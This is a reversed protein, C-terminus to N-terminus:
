HLSTSASMSHDTRFQLRRTQIEVHPRNVADRRRLVSKSESFQCEIGVQQHIQKMCLLLVGSMGTVVLTVTAVSQHQIQGKSGWVSCM